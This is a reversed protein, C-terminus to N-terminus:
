YTNQWNESLCKFDWLNVKGDEIMDELIEGSEGTWLWKESLQIFDEIGIFNDLNLDGPYHKLKIYRLEIGNGTGLNRSYQKNIPSNWHEHVGLSQLKVGDNDPDYFTGSPPNGALAAEHLYDEVGGIRVVAPWEEWLIDFGVSDIAVPDQSVFISSPWDNDFPAMHFKYPTGEWYYGGYLGDLMYLLTKQGMEPHGMIDVLARYQGEATNSGEGALSNHLDYFGAADPTRNYSGYHNKACLTIGAGHGKLVALNILYDAEAYLSPIYDATFSNPDLGHSWHQQIVSPGSKIRGRQGIEDFFTVEPFEGHCLNWWQNPFYTLTDGVAIDSPNVGAKYVLQRLVAIIAQPSTDSKDLYYIKDYTAPDMTWLRTNCTTLNVKIVIKEGATYGIEGKGHNINFYTFINEWATYDNNVGALERISKSVMSDVYKQPTHEPQWSYGDGSGKWNAANPDHVWVVRGPFIGKAIGIPQNPIMDQASAQKQATINLSFWLSIVSITLCLFGLLLRKKNLHRKAKTIFCLAGFIGILWIIFGSALPFAIRQCPYTARSPKPIVRILFWVLALFGICPLMLKFWFSYKRDPNQNELKFRRYFQYPNMM